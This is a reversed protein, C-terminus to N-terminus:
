ARKARRDSMFQDRTNQGGTVHRVQAFCLTPAFANQGEITTAWMGYSKTKVLLFIKNNESMQM